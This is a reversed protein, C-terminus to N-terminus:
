NKVEAVAQVVPIAEYLSQARNVLVYNIKGAKRLSRMVRDASAPATGFNRANVAHRLENATFRRPNEATIAAGNATLGNMRLTWFEVITQTLNLATM